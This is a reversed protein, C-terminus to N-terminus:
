MWNLRELEEIIYPINLDVDGNVGLQSEERLEAISIWEWSDIKELAEISGQNINDNEISGASVWFQINVGLELKHKIYTVLDEKDKTNEKKHDPDFYFPVVWRVAQTIKKCANAVVDTTHHEISPQHGAMGTCRYKAQLIDFTQEFELM